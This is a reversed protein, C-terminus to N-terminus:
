LRQEIHHLKLIIPLGDINKFERLYGNSWVELTDIGIWSVKVIQGRIRLILEVKGSTSQNDKLYLEDYGSLSGSNHYGYVAILQGSDPQSLEEKVKFNNSLSNQTTCSAILIVILILMWTRDIALQLM